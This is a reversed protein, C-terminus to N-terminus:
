ALQKNGCSNFHLGKVNIHRSPNINDHIILPLNNTSCIYRTSTHYSGEGILNTKKPLIKSVIVKSAANKVSKACYRKITQNLMIHNLMIAYYQIVDNAIDKPEKDSCLDNTCIHIIIKAPSKDQATNKYHNM